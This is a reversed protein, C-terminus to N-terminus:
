LSRSCTAQNECVSECKWHNGKLLVNGRPDVLFSFSAFSCLFINLWKGFTLLHDRTIRAATIPVNMAGWIPYAWPVQVVSAGTEGEGVSPIVTPPIPCTM